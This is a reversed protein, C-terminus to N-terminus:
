RKVALLFLFGDSFFRFITKIEQKNLDNKNCHYCKMVKFINLVIWPQHFMKQISFQLVSAYQKTKLPIVDFEFLWWVQKCWYEVKLNTFYYKLHNTTDFLYNYGLFFSIKGMGMKGPADGSGTFILFLNLFTEEM